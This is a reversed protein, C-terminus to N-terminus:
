HLHARRVFRFAREGHALAIISNQVAYNVLKCAFCSPLGHGGPEGPESPLLTEGSTWAQWKKGERRAGWSHWESGVLVYMYVYMCVYICVYMCVYMCSYMCACVRVCVHACVCVCVCFSM